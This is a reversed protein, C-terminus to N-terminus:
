GLISKKNKNFVYGEKIPNDVGGLESKTDIPDEKKTPAASDNSNDDEKIVKVKIKKGKAFEFIGQKTVITCAEKMELEKDEPEDKSSAVDGDKKVEDPNDEGLKNGIDGKKAYTVPGSEEKKEKNDSPKEDDKMARLKAMKDDDASEEKKDHVEKDEKSAEWEAMTMGAAKAKEADEKNDKEDGEAEKIKYVKDGKELRFIGEECVIDQSENIEVEDEKKDEAKDEKSDEEEAEVIFAGKIAKKEILETKGTISDSLIKLTGNKYHELVKRPLDKYVVYSGKLSKTSEIVLPDGKEVKVADNPTAVQEADQPSSVKDAAKEVSPAIMNGPTANMTPDAPTADKIVQGNDVPLNIEEGELFKVIKM